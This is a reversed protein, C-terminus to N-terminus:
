ETGTLCLRGNQGSPYGDEAMVEWKESRVTTRAWFVSWPDRARKIELLRGYHDGYFSQQWNPESPDGENMYAGSEPMADRWLQMYRQIEAEEEEAQQATLGVPQVTMLSAHMVANRWAPNVANTRGPWGAIELKPGHPIGHFVYGAEVSKRIADMTKNFLADSQWNKRPFYRSRYRTNIPTAGSAPRRSGYSSSTLSRPNTLNLGIRNFDDYLPQMFQVVQTPTFGVFQSSTTFTFTNNGQPRIYNFCIGGANVVKESFRSYLNFAQWFIEPDTISTAPLPTSPNTPRNILNFNLSSVTMNIPPYAKMVVSTVIGYTSGGGGRLAYFLDENTFPDATVFRGDATVVQISLVQDAGLGYLSTLAGHGGVAFWGGGVGVTSGGPAVITINYTAMYNFLEWAEVGAGIRVAMGTYEGITFDPVFEFSKLHHTWISLSGAGLPRGGFDHGTNKIILRVNNNRAFNVGAQVHKVTTVNVVYTPFGGQTCNGQPDRSAVCTDGAPWQTLTTAAADLFFRTNGPPTIVFNCQAADFSPGPYCASAPPLPKLLAGDLSANLKNWEEETPWDLSGPFAKCKPDDSPESNAAAFSLVPFDNIDDQTLQIAEYPFNIALVGRTLFSALTVPLLQYM